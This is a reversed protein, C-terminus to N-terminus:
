TMIQTVIGEICIGEAFGEFLFIQCYFVWEVGSEVDESGCMCIFLLGVFQEIQLIMMFRGILRKVANM